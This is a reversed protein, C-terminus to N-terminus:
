KHLNRESVVINLGDTKLITKGESNQFTFAKKIHPTEWLVTKSAANRIITPLDLRITKLPLQFPNTYNTIYDNLVNQSINVSIFISHVYAM